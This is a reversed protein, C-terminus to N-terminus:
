LVFDGCCDLECGIFFFCLFELYKIYSLILGVCVGYLLFVFSSLMLNSINIYFCEIFIFFIKFLMLYIGLVFLIVIKEFVM